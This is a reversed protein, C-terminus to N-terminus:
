IKKQLAILEEFKSESILKAQEIINSYDFTSGKEGLAEKLSNSDYKALQYFRKIGAAFFKQQNKPGIGKIANDFDDELENTNTPNQGGGVVKGNDNNNGEPKYVYGLKNLYEVMKHILAEKDVDRKLNVKDSYVFEYVLRYLSGSSKIKDIFESIAVEPDGPNYSIERNSFYQQIRLREKDTVSLNESAIVKGVLAANIYSKVIVLADLMKTAIGSEDTVEHGVISRYALYFFIGEESLVARSFGDLRSANLQSAVKVLVGTYSEKELYSKINNNTSSPYAISNEQISKTIIDVNSPPAMKVVKINLEYIAEEVMEDFSASSPAIYYNSSLLSFTSKTSTSATRLLDSTRDIKKYYTPTPESKSSILSKITGNETM